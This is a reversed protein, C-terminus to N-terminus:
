CCGVFRKGSIEKRGQLDAKGPLTIDSRKKTLYAAQGTQGSQMDPM